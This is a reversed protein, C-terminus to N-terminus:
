KMLRGKRFFTLLSNPAVVDKLSTNFAKASRAKKPLRKIKEFLEPKKDRIEEIIRLYKLESEEEEDEQTITKKSLLKDFLEHSSVPEGETLIAADGGLLTLFAEIKSRAIKTLEIESDVQKTPFFNFVYIKDFKTGVRNIRGVRQMLRTPNWPIDYNIVINSRHLNVGESL